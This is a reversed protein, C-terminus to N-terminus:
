WSSVLDKNPSSVTEKTGDSWIALSGNIATPDGSKKIPLGSIQNDYDSDAIIHYTKVVSASSWPDKFGTPSSPNILDKSNFEMFVIRRPNQDSATASASGILINYLETDDSEIETDATGFLGPWRGYETQYATLATKLQNVMAGAQAKRAANLAAQVGPFALSALIGIITIVVLLEILTFGQSSRSSKFM